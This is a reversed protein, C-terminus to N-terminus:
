GDYDEVLHYEFFGNLSYGLVAMLRYKTGEYIIQDNTKAQIETTAHIQKWAWSRSELPKLKLEEPGLPQVTGEFELEEETNEVRKTDPNVAQTIKTITIPSKWGSLTLAMNPMM